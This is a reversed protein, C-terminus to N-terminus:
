FPSFLNFWKGYLVNFQSKDINNNHSIGTHLTDLGPNNRVYKSRKEQEFYKIHQNFDALDTRSYSDASLTKSVLTNFM